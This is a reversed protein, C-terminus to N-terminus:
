LGYHNDYHYYCYSVHTHFITSKKLATSENEKLGKFRSNSHGADSKEKCYYQQIM